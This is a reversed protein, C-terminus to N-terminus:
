LAEELVLDGFGKNDFGFERRQRGKNIGEGGGYEPFDGDSPYHVIKKDKWDVVTNANHWGFGGGYDKFQDLVKRVDSGGDKQDYLALVVNCLLAFSPLFLGNGQKEFHVISNYPTFNIHKNLDKGKYKEMAHRVVDKAVILEDYQEMVKGNHDYCEIGKLILFDNQNVITVLPDSGKKPDEEKGDKDPPDGGGDNVVKKDPLFWSILERAGEEDSKGSFVSVM